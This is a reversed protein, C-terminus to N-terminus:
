AVSGYNPCRITHERDSGVFVTRRGEPATNIVEAALRVAAAAGAARQRATIGASGCTACPSEIALLCRDVIAM